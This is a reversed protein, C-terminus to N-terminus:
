ISIGEQELFVRLKKRTRSLMSKVGSRTMGFRASIDKISDSYWYRRVFVLRSREDTGRLFESIKRGTDEQEYIQEASQAAALCEGLEDVIETINRGRKAANLYSLRDLACTRTVRGIYAKLSDPRHPPISNWVKGCADSFCEEADEHVGLINGAVAMCYGMYKETTEAIAQEDRQWFLEIIQRDDM